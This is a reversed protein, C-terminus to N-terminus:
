LLADTFKEYACFRFNTHHKAPDVMTEVGAIRVRSVSRVQAQIRATTEADPCAWVVRQWKSQHMATLHGEVIAAYRKPSKVTREVEVAVRLGSATLCVADPKKEGAKIAALRDSNVWQKVLGTNVAQIRLTQVDLTHMLFLLSFRSPEFAREYATEGAEPDFAYAQGIPTIGVIVLPMGPMLQLTHRKILGAEEMPTLTQRTARSGVGMVLGAVKPTTYLEERLFRLLARRKEKARAARARPDAIIPM